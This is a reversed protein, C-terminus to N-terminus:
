VLCVERWAQNAHPKLVTPKRLQLGFRGTNLASPNACCGGARRTSDCGATVAGCCTPTGPWRAQRAYPALRSTQSVDGTSTVPARPPSPAAQLLSPTIQAKEKVAPATM